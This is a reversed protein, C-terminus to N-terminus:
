TRKEKYKQNNQLAISLEDRGQIISDQHNNRLGYVILDIPYYQEMIDQYEKTKLIDIEGYLRIIEEGFKSGIEEDSDELLYIFDSYEDTIGADGFDIIGSLRNNADLLLHNCSFDNHCLCKRGKFITTSNLILLFSEIYTKEEETLMEYMTDKLSQCNNLINLYNDIHYHSIETYDLTHLERLFRAIDLKLTNQEEISMTAYIEPTLFRGDIKKYGMISLTDTIYSFDIKPIQIPSKLNKNLFDCIAKEKKYDMQKDESIRM